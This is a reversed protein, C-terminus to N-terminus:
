IASGQNIHDTHSHTYQSSHVIYDVQRLYIIVSEVHPHQSIASCSDLCMCKHIARVTNIAVTQLAENHRHM